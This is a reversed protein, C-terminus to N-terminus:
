GARRGPTRPCRAGAPGRAPLPQLRALCCPAGETIRQTFELRGAGSLGALLGSDLAGVLRCVEASYTDSFACRGITIEGDRTGRLDIDLLGYLMRAAAMADETTRLHLGARLRGGLVHAGRELRDHLAPLDRGDRLAAEAQDRTFRAYRRLLADADLGELPPVPCGFGAATTAFLARLAARRAFAPLHADVLRLALSM